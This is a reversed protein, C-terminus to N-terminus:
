IIKGEEVNQTEKTNWGTWMYKM